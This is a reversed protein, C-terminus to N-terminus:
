DAKLVLTFDTVTTLPATARVASSKNPMLLVPKWADASLQQGEANHWLTRYYLHIKQNSNNNIGAQISLHQNEMNNQLSTVVVLNESNNEYLVKEKIQSPNYTTQAHTLALFLTVSVILISKFIIRM